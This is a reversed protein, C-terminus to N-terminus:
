PFNVADGVHGGEVMTKRALVITLIKQCGSIWEKRLATVRSNCPICMYDDAEGSTYNEYLSALKHQQKRNATPQEPFRLILDSFDDEKTTVNGCKPCTVAQAMMGSDFNDWFEKMSTYLDNDYPHRITNPDTNAQEAKLEKLMQDKLTVIYEHADQEEENFQTPDKKFIETFATPDVIKTNDRIMSSIVSAFNYYLSLHQHSTSPPNILWENLCGCSAIIQFVTNVYCLTNNNTLGANRGDMVTHRTGSLGDVQKDNIEESNDSKATAHEGSASSTYKKKKNRATTQSESADQGAKRAFVTAAEEKTLACRYTRVMEEWQWRPLLRFRPHQIRAARRYIQDGGVAGAATAASAGHREAMLSPKHSSLLTRNDRANTEPKDTSTNLLCLITEKGIKESSGPIPNRHLTPFWNRNGLRTEPVPSSNLGATSKRTFKPSRLGNGKTECKRSVSTRKRVNGGIATARPCWRFGVEMEM